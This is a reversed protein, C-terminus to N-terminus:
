IQNTTLDINNTSQVIGNNLFLNSAEININKANIVSNNIGFEKLDNSTDHNNIINESNIQISNANMLGNNFVQKRANLNINDSDIITSFINKADMSINKSSILNTQIDNKAKIEIDELSAILGQHRVGLGENTSIIKIKNAYMSNLNSGDISFGATNSIQSSVIQPNEKTNLNIINKGSILNININEKGYNTHLINGTLNITDAIINFYNGDTIIGKELIDIKGNSKQTILGDNYLGTSVTVGNTNIFNVGNINFGNENAFVLDARKGFIEIAGNLSTPNSSIVETIILNAESKLNHNQKVLGGIVSAGNKLSNNLIVGDYIDFKNYKNHSVGKKNPNAINIVDIDNSSKVIKNNIPEIVNRKRLDAAMLSQSCLLSLSIGMSFVKNFRQLLM